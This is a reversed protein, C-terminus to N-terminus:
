VVIRGRFGRGSYYSEAGNHYTFVRGFRRDCFLAGGLARVPGPTAIWSSTKLDFAGLAQLARYQDEDLLTCGIQAAMEAAAGEPKNAKRADLAARDFCLSRRGLPSEPACDTFVFAEGERGTVDPEGGTQEMAALVALKAPYASLRALVDPWPIGAHRNMNATFRTSLTAIQTGIEVSNM